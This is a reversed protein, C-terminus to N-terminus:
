TKSYDESLWREPQMRMLIDRGAEAKGGRAALYREGEEPGLYRHALPRLDREFQAPEIGVVPGEVSVYKYPPTPQQVCLSVRGAKEFLRAKRSTAATWIRVDGGPEYLYWVPITLPGRGTEPISIIAVRAECLFSEREARTMVSSM